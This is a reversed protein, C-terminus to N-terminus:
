FPLFDPKQSERLARAAFELMDPNDDFHGLGRNCVSCLLWRVKVPKTGHEHDVDCNDITLEKKSIYCLGNQNKYMQYFQKPTINYKKKLLRKRAKEAKNTKKEPTRNAYREKDCVVKNAKEEPTLNANRENQKANKAKRQEDTM